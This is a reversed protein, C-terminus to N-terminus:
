CLYDFGSDPVQLLFDTRVPFHLNKDHRDVYEVPNGSHIALAHKFDDIACEHITYNVTM